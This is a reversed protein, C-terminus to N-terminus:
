QKLIRMGCDKAHNIEFMAAATKAVDLEEL